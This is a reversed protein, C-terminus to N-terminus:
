QIYYQATSATDGDCVNVCFIAVSSVCSDTSEYAENAVRFDSTALPLRVATM